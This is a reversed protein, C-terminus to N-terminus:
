KSYSTSKTYHIWIQFDKAYGLRICKRQSKYIIYYIYICRLIGGKVNPGTILRIDM